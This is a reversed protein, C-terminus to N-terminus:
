SEKQYIKYLVIGNDVIRAEEPTFTSSKVIYPINTGDPRRSYCDAIRLQVANMKLARIKAERNGKIGAHAISGLVGWITIDGSAKIESGPHCDGIIVVHGDYEVCQGSRLTQHIYLTEMKDPVVPEDTPPKYSIEEIVEDNENEDYGKTYVSMDDFDPTENEISTIEEKQEENEDINVEEDAESNESLQEEQYDNNQEEETQNDSNQELNEYPAENEQFREKFNGANEFSYFESSSDNSETQNGYLVDLSNDIVPSTEPMNLIEQIEKQKEEKQEEITKTIENVVDPSIVRINMNECLQKTILSTTEIGYLSSGYSMILSKISLMQSQNLQFDKLKLVIEKGKIEPSEFANSIDRIMEPTTLCPTLDIVFNEAM